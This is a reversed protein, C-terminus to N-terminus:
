NAGTLSGILGASFRLITLADSANIYQDGNINAALKQQETLETLNSSYRLIALADSANILGDANVDGLVFAAKVIAVKLLGDNAGAILIVSNQISSPYVDFSVAGRDGDATAATQDIYLISDSDITYAEGDQSKVMLVVYQNGAVLNASSVTVHIIDPNTADFTATAGVGEVVTITGKETGAGLATASLLLVVILTLSLFKCTRKM